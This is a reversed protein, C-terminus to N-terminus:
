GGRVGSKGVQPIDPTRYDIDFNTLLLEALDEGCIHGYGREEEAAYNDILWKALEEQSITM